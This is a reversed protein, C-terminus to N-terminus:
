KAYSFYYPSSVSRMVYRGGAESLRYCTQMSKFKPNDMDFCVQGSEQEIRYRGPSYGRSVSNTVDLSGGERIDLWLTIGSPATADIRGLHTFHAALEAGTLQRDQAGQMQAPQPQPQAPPPVAAAAATESRFRQLALASRAPVEAIWQAPVAFNLNQADARMLYTIGILQGDTDFLGGGSSGPSIPATTQLRVVRGAADKNLSSLLGDSLTLEYGRPAGIAYVKQGVRLSALPAIKVAPAALGRAQLICLDREVDAHLLRASHATNERRIAIAKGNRLVHCNTVLAEPGIVVSSGLGIRGGQADFVTVVWISPSEREYLQASDLALGPLSIGATM